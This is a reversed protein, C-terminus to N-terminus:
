VYWLYFRIFHCCYCLVFMYFYDWVNHCHFLPFGPALIFIIFIHVVSHSNSAYPTNMNIKICIKAVFVYLVLLSLMKYTEMCIIKIQESIFHCFFLYILPQKGNICKDDKKKQGMLMMLPSPCPTTVHPTVYISPM